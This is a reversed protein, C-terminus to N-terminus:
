LQSSSACHGCNFLTRDKGIRIEIERHIFPIFVLSKLFAQGEQGNLCRIKGLETLDKSSVESNYFTYYNELTSLIASKIFSHSSRVM